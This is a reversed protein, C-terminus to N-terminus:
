FPRSGFTTVGPMNMYPIDCADRAQRSLEYAPPAYFQARPGKAHMTAIEVPVIALPKTNPDAKTFPNLVVFYSVSFCGIDSTSRLDKSLRFEGEMYRCHSTSQASGSVWWTATGCDELTEKGKSKKSSYRVRRQLSAAISGPSCLADVAATDNGEVTLMCPIVSGRTYCLPKPLSFVCSVPGSRTKSKSKPPSVMIPDSCHWGHPDADPGSLPLNHTYAYQRLISPTDPRSSPVYGFATTIHSDARLKGRSLTVTIDYQVTVLSDRELFTEPLSFTQTDTKTTIDVTRPLSISFPLTHRGTLKNSDTPSPTRSSGESSKGWIPTSLDLFSMAGDSYAGTIIRGTIRVNVASICDGGKLHLEVCGNVKEKEYFTPLSRASKASSFVKLTAWAKGNSGVLQFLHETPDRPPQLPAALTNRRSYAPLESGPAPVPGARSYRRYRPPSAVDM